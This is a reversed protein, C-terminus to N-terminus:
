QRVCALYAVGGSIAGSGGAAFASAWVAGATGGSAVTTIVALGGVALGGLASWASQKKCKNMAAQVDAKTKVPTKATLDSTHPRVPRPSNVVNSFVVTEFGYNRSPLQSYPASFNTSTTWHPVYPGFIAMGNSAHPVFEVDYRTAGPVPTWNVSFTTPGYALTVSQPSVPTATATATLSSFALAGAVLCAALGTALRSMRGSM